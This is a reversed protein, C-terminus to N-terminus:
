CYQGTELFLLDWNFLRVKCRFSSFCSYYVSSLTLILFPIIFILASYVFYLKFFVFSWHFWSSRTQFSLYFWHIKLWVWWSFLSLVWIFLISFFSSFYCSVGCFYLPNYSFVVFLKISVFQVIQVFHM